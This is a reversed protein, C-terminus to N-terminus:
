MQNVFAVWFRERVRPWWGRKRWQELRIERADALDDHFTNVVQEGFERDLIGIVAEQNLEKSRIDMNASGVVSWHGDVVLLKAHLMTPQYEYIRVGAQLLEDYGAQAAWRVMPADTHRGPLLLRVDAGARAREMLVRRVEEAPAFYPNTLYISERACSLSLLFFVRLPQAAIDPSSTVNIHKSIEEGREDDPHETPYFADGVLIEGTTAAWLQTFASQLNTALCGRIEVMVDRWHDSDHADGLWMDDVAAGGTFAVRGDIIIARRHNRKYVATMRGLRFPQFFAVRGGADEIRAMQKRPARASGFADLMLRVQVGAKAREELADVLRDSADGDHWIYVMFDITREAGRIAEILAPFIEVGNNLLRATGGEMMPANVVGALAMMFEDSGPEPCSTLTYHPPRNLSVFLTLLVSVLSGAGMAALLVLWLPEGFLEM